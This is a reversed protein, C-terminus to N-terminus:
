NTESSRTANKKDELLGLFIDPINLLYDVAKLRGNLDGMHLLVSATSPNSEAAVDVISKLEDEFGQKWLTLEDCIDAWILSSKFDEIQSRSARLRPSNM